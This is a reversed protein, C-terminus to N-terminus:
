AGIMPNVYTVGIYVGGTIVVLLLGVTVLNKGIAEANYNYKICCVELVGAGITALVFGVILLFLLM